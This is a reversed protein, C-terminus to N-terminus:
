ILEDHPTSLIEMLADRSVIRIEHNDYDIIGRDRLGNLAAM